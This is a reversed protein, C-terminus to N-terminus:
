TTMLAASLAAALAAREEPSDARARWAVFGDPRVLVAGTESVDYADSFSGDVLPLDPGGVCHM